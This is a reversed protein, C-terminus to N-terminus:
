DARRGVALRNSELGPCRPRQSTQRLRHRRCPHSGLGCGCMTPWPRTATPAAVCTEEVFESQTRALEGNAHASLLEEMDTHIM